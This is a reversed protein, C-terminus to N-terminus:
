LCSEKKDEDASFPNDSDELLTLEQFVGQHVKARNAAKVARGQAAYQAAISHNSEEEMESMRQRGGDFSLMVTFREGEKNKGLKFKRPSRYDDPISEWVLMAADADQEMQGSEKFSQMTPPILIQTGDQKKVKDPRTLQALAVVAVRHRPAFMKLIRSTASVRDYPRSEPGDVLQIYDIYIIQYGRAIAHATIDSATWGSAEVLELNLEAFKSVALALAQYDGESLARDKIKGLPVGSLHCMIRDTMKADTTELSYYGVKYTKAQLLAMQLSLLTKGASPYGGLLIFDGLEACVKADATELGWPIYDPKQRAKLRKWFAGALEGATSADKRQQGVLHQSLLQVARRAEALTCAELVKSAGDRLRRYQACDRVIRVYESVNAATPTAEMISAAWQCWDQGGGVAEQVLIPDVPQGALALNRIAQYTHRCPGDALDEVPLEAVVANICRDDILMSGVVSQEAGLSNLSLLNLEEAM